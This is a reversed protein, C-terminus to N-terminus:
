NNLHHSMFIESFLVSCSKLFVTHTHVVRLLHHRANHIEEHSLVANGLLVLGNWVTTTEHDISVLAM